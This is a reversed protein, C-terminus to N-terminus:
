AISDWFAFKRTFFAKKLVTFEVNCFWSIEAFFFNEIKVLSMFLWFSEDIGGIIEFFSTILSAWRLLSMKLSRKVAFAVTSPFSSGTETSSGSSLMKSDKSWIFVDGISIEFIKLCSFLTVRRVTTNRTFEEIYYCRWYRKAKRSHQIVVKFNTVKWINELYTMYSSKPFSRTKFRIWGIIPWNCEQRRQWICGFCYNVLSQKVMKSFIIDYRITLYCDWLHCCLWDVKNLGGIWFKGPTFIEGSIATVM